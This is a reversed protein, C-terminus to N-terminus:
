VATQPQFHLWGLGHHVHIAEVSADDVIKVADKLTQVDSWPGM